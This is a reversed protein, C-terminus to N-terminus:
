FAAKRTSCASLTLTSIVILSALLVKIFFPINSYKM